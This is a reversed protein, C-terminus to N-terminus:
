VPGFIASKGQLVANKMIDHNHQQPLRSGQAAVLPHSNGEETGSFELRSVTRSAAESSLTLSVQTRLCAAESGITLSPLLRQRSSTFSFPLVIRLCRFSLSPVTASNGLREFASSRRAM